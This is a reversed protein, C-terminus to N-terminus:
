ERNTSMAVQANARGLPLEIRVTAGSPGGAGNARGGLDLRGGHQEVIWAVLPLGLGTGGSAGVAYRALVDVDPPFGPGDDLVTVIARGDHRRVVVECSPLVDGVRGHRISNDVLNNIAHRLLAPDGEVVVPEVVDVVVSPYTHELEGAVAALDVSRRRVPIDGHEARTALLLNSVVHTASDAVTVLQNLAGRVPDEPGTLRRAAEAGARLRAVPGRLEHAATSLFRERDALAEAAPRLSRGAVLWCVAALLVLVAVAGGAAPVLLGSNTLRLTRAAVVVVAGGPEDDEHWWLMAVAPRAEGGVTVTGFVPDDSRGGAARRALALAPGRDPGGIELLVAAAGKGSRDQVLLPSGSSALSDDVIGDVRTKGTTEDDYILATARAAAGALESEQLTRELTTSTILLLLVFLVLVIGAATAFVVTLRFRLRRLGAAAGHGTGPRSM